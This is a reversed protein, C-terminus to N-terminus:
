KHQPKDLLKDKVGNSISRLRLRGRNRVSNVQTSIVLGKSGAQKAIDMVKVALGLDIKEDAKLIVTKKQNTKLKGELANKLKDINIRKNNLFIENEQTIFVIVDEEEQPKATVAQPLTIKIGPRTIFNATLMFFILLLFVIDILPAIDLHTNMKKAREFEM